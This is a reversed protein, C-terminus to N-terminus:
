SKAPKDRILEILMSDLEAQEREAALANARDVMAQVQRRNLKKTGDSCCDDDDRVGYIAVPSPDPQTVRAPVCRRREHPPCQCDYPNRGCDCESNRNRSETVPIPTVANFRRHALKNMQRMSWWVTVLVTFLVVVGVIILIIQQTQQDM